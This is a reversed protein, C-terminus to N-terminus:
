RQSRGLLWQCINLGFFIFGPMGVWAGSEANAPILCALIFSLVSFGVVLAWDLRKHRAYAIEAPALRLSEAHKLTRAFLLLLVLAMSGFGIAFTQFMVPVEAWSNISFP